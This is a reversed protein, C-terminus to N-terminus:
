SVVPILSPMRMGQQWQEFTLMGDWAEENSMQRLQMHSEMHEQLSILQRIKSVTENSAFVKHVDCLQRIKYHLQEIESVEILLSDTYRKRIKETRGTIQHCIDEYVKISVPASTEGIKVTGSGSGSNQEIIEAM